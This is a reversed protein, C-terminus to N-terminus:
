KYTKNQLKRLVWFFCSLSFMTRLQLRRFVFCGCERMLGAQHTKDGIVDTEKFCIVIEPLINHLLGTLNGDIAEEGSHKLIKL